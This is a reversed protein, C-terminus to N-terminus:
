FCFHPIMISRKGKPQGASLVYREVLRLATICLDTKVSLCIKGTQLDHDKGGREQM